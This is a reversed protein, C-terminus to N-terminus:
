ESFPFICSFLLHNHFAYINSCQYISIFLAKHTPSIIRLLVSSILLLIQNRVSDSENKICCQCSLVYQVHDEGPSLFSFKRRTQILLKYEAHTNNRLQLLMREKTRKQMKKVRKQEGERQTARLYSYLIKKLFFQIYIYSSCNYVVLNHNFQPQIEKTNRGKGNRVFFFYFLIFLFIRQSTQSKKFFCKLM